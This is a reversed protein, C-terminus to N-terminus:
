YAVYNHDRALQAGSMRIAFRGDPSQPPGFLCASGHHDRQDAPVGFLAMCTVEARQRWNGCVGRAYREPPKDVSAQGDDPDTLLVHSCANPTIYCLAISYDLYM